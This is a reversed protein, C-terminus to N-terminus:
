KRNKKKKKDKEPVKESETAYRAKAQRVEDKEDFWVDLIVGNSRSYMWKDTGDPEKVMRFPEGVAMEVEEKSMGIIVRGERIAARTEKSTTKAAGEGMGFLSGFFDEESLDPDELVDEERFAVDKYYIRRSETERLTLAYLHSNHIRAIEDIIFGTFRPVTIDRVKGSGKSSMTTAMKTYVTKNLYDRVNESVAMKAGAFEFAGQFLYQEYDQQFEEDRLGSNTKSMAVNQYFQNGNEDEVIIKVPFARTGVGISKVVVMM